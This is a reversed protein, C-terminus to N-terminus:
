QLQALNWVVIDVQKMKGIGTFDFKNLFGIFKDQKLLGMYVEKITRYRINPSEAVKFHFVKIVNGDIIAYEADNVFNMLKSAFVYHRKETQLEDVVENIAMADKEIFHKRMVEFYRPLDDKKYHSALGYYASYAWIFEQNRPIDINRDYLERILRYLIISKMIDGDNIRELNALIDDIITQNNGKM